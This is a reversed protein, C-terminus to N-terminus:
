DNENEQRGAPLGAAERYVKDLLQGMTEWSYQSEVLQRANEALKRAQAPKELLEITGSALGEVDDRILVHVGDRVGIGQAGISTTVIPLKSAMAALNKLRTGGPGKLPSVFVSAKNYAEKISLVDDEKLSDIIVDQRRLRTISEPTYQGVIWLQADPLKEKVKPFIETVLVHAAEVNQLWKFNSVFLIKPSRSSWSKKPVFFDLDVGNPVLNVDLGRELTLMEKKDAASVAVVKSARKWFSREWFKLKAVDVGLLFKLPLFMNKVFHQYVLYEITQEVLITPLATKPINTMVYFTEAHILDYQEKKLEEDVSARFSKSLYIAVLFPYLSIGALLVNLPAWAQRRKFVTVKKCYKKLEPIFKREKDDRIYCFLTIDHKKYLQKILNYSRVQGGSSPPYPLYPTLMLIKM